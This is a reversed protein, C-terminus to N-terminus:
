KSGYKEYRKEIIMQIKWIKNSNLKPKKTNTM